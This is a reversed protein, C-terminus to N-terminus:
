PQWDQYPKHVKSYVKDLTGNARMTRIADSIVKDVFDGRPTRPVIFVDDYDLFHERHINKLGLRKLVLDSEEQAWLLGDIRGASIKKFSSEFDIFQRTPFGWDLAHAEVAYPQGRKAAALLEDRTLPKNTNSYIVFCVKGVAETTFRYPLKEELKPELRMTPFAFDASGEAVNAYARASPYASISINGQTYSEDIAKVLEIFSGETSSDVLSPLLIASAILDPSTVPRAATAPAAPTASNETAPSPPNAPTSPPTTPPATPAAAQTPKAPEERSCGVAGFALSALLIRRRMESFEPQQLHDTFKHACM